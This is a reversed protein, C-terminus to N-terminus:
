RSVHPDKIIMEGEKMSEVFKIRGELEKGGM